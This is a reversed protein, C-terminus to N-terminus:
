CGPAAPQKLQTSLQAPTLAPLCGLLKGAEGSVYGASASTGTATVQKGLENTTKFVGAVQLTVWPGYNSWNYRQGAPNVSGVVIADPTSMGPYGVSAGSNGAAVVVPVGAEVAQEIAASLDPNDSPTTMSLNIVTTGHAVAWQIGEIALPATGMGSGGLVRVPEILCKPCTSAVINAIETGHGNLDAPKADNDVFDWGPLVRKALQKSPTVGSDVVAVVVPKPQGHAPFAAVVSILAVLALLGAMRPLDLLAM